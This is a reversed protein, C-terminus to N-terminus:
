QVLKLIAGDEGIIYNGLEIHAMTLTCRLVTPSMCPSSIASTKQSRVIAASAGGNSISLAKYNSCLSKFNRLCPTLLEAIKISKCKM